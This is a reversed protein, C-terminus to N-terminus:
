AKRRFERRAFYLISSLVLVIGTVLFERATAHALIWVIALIALAPVIKMGPFNFPEGDSRVDRQVLVWCAACCLLYMLLVAVNSLVALREFSGSVSLAFALTAYTIIAVDPSRYHPHVHAFFKPLTHDRGFAFIMRPSSLIDSTVFGFASVTMGALLITRGLNGLFKAASEALPADPHNALDGGLTGQAVVQILIYIITTVVLALYASRPVTRAPNKVEGSPILAVEIGVFAFMLLIVADGLSKSSPWAGWSLNPPHIFFLGVCIFLLLPLLKAVTIVTVAGAGERVGRINILVLAGYVVLMVVIRMMPSGLFPVVLAVSNALVNVVGAVAGLATLFYLIGALFGIYRGFAVEVYAYLGGTLSVRSGAIAFCTVFLVMAIACCIFALPAAPGLGAAVTARILYSGAGITSSIINATLAPIGIGRVLQHDVREAQEISLTAEEAM